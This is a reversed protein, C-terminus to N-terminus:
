CTGSVLYLIGPGFHEVQINSLYKSLLRWPMDKDQQSVSFRSYVKHIFPNLLSAPLKGALQPGAAVVRGGPKMFTFINELAELSTLVDHMAFLLLADFKEELKIAEAASEIVRVNTWANKQIRKEAQSIMDPSLDVGVVHGNRGVAQNLFRFNAGSSCGIELVSRGPLLKLLRVAKRRLPFTFAFLFDPLSAIKKYRNIIEAHMAQM